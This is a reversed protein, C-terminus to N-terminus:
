MLLTLCWFCMQIDCREASCAACRARHARPIRTATIEITLMVYLSHFPLM